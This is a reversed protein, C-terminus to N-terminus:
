DVVSHLGLTASQPASIDANQMLPNLLKSDHAISPWTIYHV